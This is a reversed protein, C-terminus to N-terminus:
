KKVVKKINKRDKKKIQKDKNYKFRKEEKLTSRRVRKERFLPYILPRKKKLPLFGKGMAESVPSCFMFADADIDAVINKLHQVQSRNVVIMLMTRSASTYVGDAPISTVGRAVDTIIKDAIQNNKTSIIYYAKLSQVGAIVIDAVKGMIWIAVLSYLSFALGYVLISLGVVIMDIFIVVTGIPIEPKKANIISALLDSGGTSGRGRLVIGLGLGMLVGGYITCLILDDSIVFDFKVIEIFLAYFGIGIASTIAFRKGLLKFAFIYLVANMALYLVSTPILFGFYKHCLVSILSALGAFGSPSIKNPVLFINFSLSMLFTGMIIMLCDLAFKLKKNKIMDELTINVSQAM